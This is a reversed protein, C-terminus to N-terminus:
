RQNSLRRYMLHRLMYAVGKEIYPIESMCILRFIYFLRKEEYDGTLKRVIQSQELLDIIVDDSIDQGNNFYKRLLLATDGM